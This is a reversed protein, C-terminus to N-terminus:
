DKWGKQITRFASNSRHLLTVYIPIVWRINSLNEAFTSSLYNFIHDNFQAYFENMILLADDQLIIAGSNEFISQNKKVAPNARSSQAEFYQWLHHFM